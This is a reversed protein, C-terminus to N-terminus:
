LGNDDITRYGTFMVPVDPARNWAQLCSSLYEPDFLDDSDLFFVTEADTADLALNRPLSAGGSANGPSRAIILKLDLREQFSQVVGKTDDTSGDDAVVVEFDKYTQRCLSELTQGILQADNHCPIIVAVQDSM